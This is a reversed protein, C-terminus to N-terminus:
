AAERHEGVVRAPYSTVSVAQEPHEPVWLVAGEGEVRTRLAGGNKRLDEVVFFAYRHRGAPLSVAREWLGPAVQLLPHSNSHWNNFDGILSVHQAQPMRIRITHPILTTM